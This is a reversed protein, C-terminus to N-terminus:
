VTREPRINKKKQPAAVRGDNSGFAKRVNQHNSDMRHKEPVHREKLVVRTQVVRQHNRAVNEQDEDAEEKNQSRCARPWVKVKKSKRISKDKDLNEQSRCQLRDLINGAPQRRVRQPYQHAERSSVIPKRHIASYGQM